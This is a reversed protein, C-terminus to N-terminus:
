RKLVPKRKPPKPTKPSKPPLRKPDWCTVRGYAAKCVGRPTSACKVQGYKAVCSYGCVTKGHRTICRARKMGPRYHAPDWCKVRGYGATCVGAPTQACAVQGHKAICRYGCKTVGFKSLCNAKPLPTPDIHPPRWGPADDDTCRLRGKDKYCRAGPTQACRLTRYAKACGYGCDTKGYASLCRAKDKSPRRQNSAGQPDWCKVVGHQVTCRGQPTKACKVRGFKAKCDFGCVTRGWKSICSKKSSASAPPAALMLALSIFALVAAFGFRAARLSVTKLRRPVLTRVM